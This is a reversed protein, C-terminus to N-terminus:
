TQSTKPLNEKQNNIGRLIWFIGISILAAFFCWVSALYGVFFIVSILCSVALLMGLIWMRKVSSVFLPVITVIVYLVFAIMTWTVPFEDVYLIHFSQIQPHVNYFILCFTYFLSVIGGTAMLVALAKRRRNDKELVWLSFSIMTPWIVLAAILFIYTAANQLGPANGNKLTVWVVGEAAQQIGFLFPIVALPLQSPKKVKTLTAIGIATIIASGTFSAEASFCM